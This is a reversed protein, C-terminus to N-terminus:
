YIEPIWYGTSGIIWFLKEQFVNKDCCYAPKILQADPMTKLVRERKRNVEEQKEALLPDEEELKEETPDPKTKKATNGDETTKTGRKKPQLNNDNSKATKGVTKSGGTVGSSGVNTRNGDSSRLRRGISDPEQASAAVKEDTMGLANSHNQNVAVANDLHAKEEKEEEKQIKVLQEKEQDNKVVAIDMPDIEEEKMEIEVPEEDGQSMDDTGDVDEIEREELLKLQNQDNNVVVSEM